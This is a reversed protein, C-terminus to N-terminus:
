RRSTSSCTPAARLAKDLAAQAAEACSAVLRGDVQIEVYGDAPTINMTM